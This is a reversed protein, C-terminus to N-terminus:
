DSRNTSLLEKLTKQRPPLDSSNHKYLVLLGTGDVCSVPKLNCGYLAYVLKTACGMPPIEWDHDYGIETLIETNDLKLRIKENLNSLAIDIKSALNEFPDQTFDTNTMTM